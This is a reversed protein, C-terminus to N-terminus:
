FLVLNYEKIYVVCKNYLFCISREFIYRKYLDYWCYDIVNNLNVNYM